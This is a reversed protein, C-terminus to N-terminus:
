TLPSAPDKRRNLGLLALHLCRSDDTGLPESPEDSSPSAPPLSLDASGALAQRLLEEDQEPTSGAEALQAELAGRLEAINRKEAEVEESSLESKPPPEGPWATGKDVHRVNRRQGQECPGSKSAASLNLM